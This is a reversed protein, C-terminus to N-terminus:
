SIQKCLRNLSSAAIEPSFGRRILYGYIRRRAVDPDLGKLKSLKGKILNEVIEAETYSDGLNLLQTEIVQNDIGKQKLEQKIRRLGYTRKLRSNIWAKAFANDDIFQKEKLFAIVESAVGSSFGKKKLRLLIEKESRLRFKLLLFVYDRAKAFDPSRSVL